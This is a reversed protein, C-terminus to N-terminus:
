RGCDRGHDAFRVTPDFRSVIRFSGAAPLELRLWHGASKICVRAPQGTKPDVARLYPSWHVHLIVTAPAQSEISISAPDVSTVTAGDALPAADKVRYLRWDASSWILRLYQLGAKILRAEARSAYDLETTPIAIWGVALDHLWAHYHAATLENERYFIPNNAEDAQRDWGRAIAISRPLYLSGSHDATDLVELRQGVSAPGGAARAATLRQVLPAYYSAKATPELVWSVQVGFTVAPWITLGAVALALHRRRLPACGILVPVVCVWMLREVNSGVPGPVVWFGVLALLALLAAARVVRTRSSIAVLAGGAAPTIASVPGYHMLGPGPFLVATTAAILLLLGCGVAAEVRRTRDVVVIAALVMGLFLGALPSSLYCLLALLAGALRWRSRVAVLVWVAFALGVAFTVRGIVLDAMAFLSFAVAAARPRLADRALIGAGWCGAVTLVAGTVSVGLVAMLPPTLVSYTPLSIGGFWGTWWWVDGARRVLAARALQAALDPASPTWLVYAVSLVGSVAVALAPATSWARRCAVWAARGSGPEAAADSVRLAHWGTRVDFRRASSGWRRRGRRRLSPSM